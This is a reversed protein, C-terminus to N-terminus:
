FPPRYPPTPPSGPPSPPVIQPHWFKAAEYVDVESITRYVDNTFLAEAIDIPTLPSGLGQLVIQNNIDDLATKVGGQLFTTRMLAHNILSTIPIPNVGRRNYVQVMDEFKAKRAYNNERLYQAIDQSTARAEMPLRSNMNKMFSLMLKASELQRSSRIILAPNFKPPDPAPAPTYSSTVLNNKKSEKTEKWGKLNKDSKRPIGWKPKKERADLKAIEVPDM